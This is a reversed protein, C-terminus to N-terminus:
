ESPTLVVDPGVVLPCCQCPGGFMPRKSRDSRLISPGLICNLSVDAGMAARWDYADREAVRLGFDGRLGSQAWRVWRQAYLGLRSSGCPEGPEQKM